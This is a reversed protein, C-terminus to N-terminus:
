RRRDLTRQIANADDRAATAKKDAQAKRDSDRKGRHRFFWLAGCGLGVALLIWVTTEM